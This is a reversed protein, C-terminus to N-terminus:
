EQKLWKKIEEVEPVRGSVVLRGDVAVAPTGTIGRKVIEAFDYVHVIEANLGLEKAAKRFNDETRRCKLCGSGFVEIKM